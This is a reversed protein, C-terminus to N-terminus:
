GQAYEERYIQLAELLIAVFVPGFVLGSPGLAHIGGLISLLLLVPHVKVRGRMVLPKIINDAQAIIVTGFLALGVAYHWEGILLLYLAGGAWISFAGVIPIFSFGFTIL